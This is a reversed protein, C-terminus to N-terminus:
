WSLEDRKHVDRGGSVSILLVDGRELVPTHRETPDSPSRSEVVSPHYDKWLALLSSPYRGHAAHYKEIDGILEASRAIAHNRSFKAAPDALTVQFILVVSPILVLYLPAPNINEAEAEKLLKM